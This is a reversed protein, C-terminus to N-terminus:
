GFNVQQVHEGSLIRYLLDDATSSSQIYLSFAFTVPSTMYQDSGIDTGEVGSSTERMTRLSAARGAGLAVSFPQSQKGRLETSM